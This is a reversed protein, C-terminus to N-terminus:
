YAIREAIALSDGVSGGNALRTRDGGLAGTRKRAYVGDTGLQGRHTLTTSGCKRTAIAAIAASRASAGFRKAKTSASCAVSSNIFFAYDSIPAISRTCASSCSGLGIGGTGGVSIASGGILRALALLCDVCACALACQGVVGIGLGM